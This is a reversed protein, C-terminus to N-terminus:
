LKWKEIKMKESCAVGSGFDFPILLKRSFTFRNISVGGLEEPFYDYNEARSRVTCEEEKM